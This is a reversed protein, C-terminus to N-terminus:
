HTLPTDLIKKVAGLDLPEGLKDFLPQLSTLDSCTQEHFVHHSHNPYTAAYDSFRADMKSVIDLVYDRPHNAWFDSKAVNDGNRSNFVFFANPFSRQCFELYELFTEGLRRYRIEKFGVWRTDQPPQIVEDIFVDILRADFRNPKLQDAGYWPHSKPRPEKGWTRRSKRLRRSARFLGELAMYNEGTIHSEPITQLISQLVTSGSRAYTVVFITGKLHRLPKSIM